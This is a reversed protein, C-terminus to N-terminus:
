MVRGPEGLGPFRYLGWQYYQMSQEARLLVVTTDALLTWDPRYGMPQDLGSPESYQRPIQNPWYVRQYSTEFIQDAKYSHGFRLVQSIMAFRKVIVNMVVRGHSIVNDLENLIVMQMARNENSMGHINKVITCSGCM